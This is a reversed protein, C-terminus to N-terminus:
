KQNNRTQRGADEKELYKYLQYFPCGDGKRTDKLLDTIVMVSARNYQTLLGSHECAIRCVDSSAADGASGSSAVAYLCLSGFMEGDERNLPIEDDPARKGAKKRLVSCQTLIDGRENALGYIRAYKLIKKFDRYKIYDMM